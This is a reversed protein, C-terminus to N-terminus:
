LRGIVAARVRRVHVVARQIKVADEDMDLVRTAAVWAYFASGLRHM